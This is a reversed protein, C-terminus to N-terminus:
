LYILNAPVWDVLGTIWTWTKQGVVYVASEDPSGSVKTFAMKLVQSLQLKPSSPESM